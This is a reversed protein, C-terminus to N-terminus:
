RTGANRSALGDYLLFVAAGHPFVAHRTDSASHAHRDIAMFVPVAYALALAVPLWGAAGTPHCQWGCRVFGLPKM